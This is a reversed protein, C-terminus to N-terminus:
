GRTNDSTLDSLRLSEPASRLQLSAIAACLNSPHRPTLPFRVIATATALCTGYEVAAGGSGAVLAQLPRAPKPLPTSYPVQRAAVIGMRPPRFVREGGSSHHEDDEDDGGDSAFLHM